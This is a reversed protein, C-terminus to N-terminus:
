KVIWAVVTQWGPGPYITIRLAAFVLISVVLPFFGGARRM